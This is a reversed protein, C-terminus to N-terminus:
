IAKGGFIRSKVDPWENCLISFYVTDRRYADEMVTHSRLTGERIAGIKEMARQSQLNRSDTKLEVRQMGLTEFAYTLMLHKQQKNLGTGQFDKGLWTAGIELRDNANSINLYSTSGSYEQAKKDFSIFPYRTGDSRQQLAKQIYAKLKDDTNVQQPSFQLLNPNRQAIPRLNNYDDEILPRLKIRENELIIHEQTNFKTM